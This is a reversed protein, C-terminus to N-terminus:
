PNPRGLGRASLDGPAELEAGQAGELQVQVEMEDGVLSLYADIGFESRKIRASASLGISPQGTIANPAIRNLRLQLEVPRTVGGLTLEGKLVGQQAGTKHLATSRFQIEPGKFLKAWAKDGRIQQNWLADGMDLSILPLTVEISSRSWDEADFLFYGPQLRLSGMLQMFDQHAFSFGVRSLKGVIAYRQPEAALAQCSLGLLLGLMWRRLTPKTRRLVAAPPALLQHTM